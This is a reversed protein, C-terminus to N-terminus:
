RNGDNVPTSGKGGGVTQDTDQAPREATSVVRNDALESQVAVVQGVLQPEIWWGIGRAYRGLQEAVGYGGKLAVRRDLPKQHVVAPHQLRELGLPHRASQRRQVPPRHM